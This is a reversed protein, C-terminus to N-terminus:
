RRRPAHGAYAFHIIMGRRAAGPDDIALSRAARRAHIYLLPLCSALNAAYATLFAAKVHFALAGTDSFANFITAATCM